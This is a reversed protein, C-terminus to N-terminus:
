VQPLKNFERRLDDEPGPRPNEGLYFNAEIIPLNYKTSLSHFLMYALESIKIMIQQCSGVNLPLVQKVGGSESLTFYTKFLMSKPNLKDKIRDTIIMNSHVTIQRISESILFTDYVEKYRSSSLHSAIQSCIKKLYRIREKNTQERKSSKRYINICKLFKKFTTQPKEGKISNEFIGITSITVKLFSEFNEVSQVLLWMYLYNRLQSHAQHHNPNTEFTHRAFVHNNSPDTFMHSFSLQVDNKLNLIVTANAELYVQRQLFADMVPSLANQSNSPSFIKFNIDPM